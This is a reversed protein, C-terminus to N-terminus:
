ENAVHEFEGEFVLESYEALITYYGKRGEKYQNLWKKLVIHEEDSLSDILERAQEAKREEEIDYDIISKAKTCIQEMKDKDLADMDVVDSMDMGLIRLGDFDIGEHDNIVKIAEQLRENKDSKPWTHSARKIVTKKAMQGFFDVWPCQKVKPNNLFAIYAQSKDRIQYIDDASMAEALIDGEKTKAVCYAGVFEGREKSFVDAKHTPMQCPGNYEFHDNSYVLDARAWLISGTDTAIKILGKYSIDLCCIGDRPVLYAYQTAPNLSLGISAINVVADRLTDPRQEAIKQLYTNKKITQSAFSAEQDYNVLSQINRKEFLPQAQKLAGQWQSLEQSM